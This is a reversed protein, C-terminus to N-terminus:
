TEDEQAKRRTVEITGGYVRAQVERLRQEIDEDSIQAALEDIDDLPNSM